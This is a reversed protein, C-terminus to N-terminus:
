VSYIKVQGTLGKELKNAVLLLLHIAMLGLLEGRYANAVKSHEPFSGFIRGRGETCELVFECSCLDPYVERIYSGDTVAICTGAGARISDLL